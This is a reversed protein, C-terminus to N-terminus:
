NTAEAYEEGVYEYQNEVEGGLAFFTSALAAAIFSAVLGYEVATAGTEDRRLRNLLTPRM